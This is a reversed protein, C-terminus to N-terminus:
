SSWTTYTNVEPTLHGNEEDRTREDSGQRGNHKINTYDKYLNLNEFEKDTPNIPYSWNQLM